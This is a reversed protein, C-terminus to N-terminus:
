LLINNTLILGCYETNLEKYNKISYMNYEVAKKLLYRNIDFFLKTHGIEPCGIHAIEHIGVYMLENIDHLKNNTKSRLCFVLEEGKNISYSTYRSYASSERIVCTKLKNKIIVFYKYYPTTDINGTKIINNILKIVNSEIHSLSNAADLKDPLNRVLYKKKLYKTSEIYEVERDYLYKFILLLFLLIIIFITELM